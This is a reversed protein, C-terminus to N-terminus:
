EAEPVVPRIMSEQAFSAVLSGDASFAHGTGFGRGGSLTPSEQSLLIWEDMRFPRHFWLSHSTVATQIRDPSHAESVGPHPRLSTGILTLDTSHALLGQHLPVGDPLPPTRQWLELRPPGTEDAGLDVGGVIRTEWPIMSLDCLPADEPAGVSPAERQHDFGKEGEVEGQLEEQFEQVHLSVLATFIAKEGQRGVIQRTAFTRGDQIPQVEYDVTERLDGARPFTVHISKVHKGECTRTAIAIAQALLQGGFIRYYPLELNPGTYHHYHHHHRTEEITLCALLDDLTCMAM